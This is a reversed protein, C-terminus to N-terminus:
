NQGDEFHAEAAWGYPSPKQIGGSTTWRDGVALVIENRGAHLLLPLTANDAELRGDPSLRRAEPYYANEGSFIKEGNLFVSVQQTWGIRLNRRVARAADVDTKLWAIAPSPAPPSGFARGLNVLGSNEAAIKRWAAAPPIDSASVAGDAPFAMPAATLWATVTGPEPQPVHVDALADPSGERVTLNAFIAPGKFAIGGDISTGQLKPVVLSPEALRNVYVVMKEGAVVLRFHNWGNQAVPAPGQFDPYINWEMGGHVIPAYQMCDDAAPCDPNARAYVFEGADTGHRRFIIGTDSYALPKMDFEITGSSFRADRAEAVSENLTMSGSPMGEYRAFHLSAAETGVWAVAPAASWFARDM